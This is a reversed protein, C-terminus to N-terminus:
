ESRGINHAEGLAIGAEIVGNVQGVVSGAQFIAAVTSPMSPAVAAVPPLTISVVVGIITIAAIAGKVAIAKQDQYEREAIDANRKAADAEIKYKAITLNPATKVSISGTGRGGSGANALDPVGVLSITFVFITILYHPKINM